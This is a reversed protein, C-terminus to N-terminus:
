VPRWKGRVADIQPTEPTQIAEFIILGRVFVSNM